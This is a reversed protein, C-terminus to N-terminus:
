IYKNTIAPDFGLMFVEIQPTLGLKNKASSYILDFLFLVDSAKANGTNEIFAAHRESIVADGSRIGKLNLIKDIIYGWSCSTLKLKKMQMATINKFCCGASNYPQIKKNQAWKIATSLAMQKEGKYLNLNIELILSKSEHFLTSDYDFGLDENLLTKENNDKDLIVVSDVYESLFHSGGHINNYIAGGITGPIGAFWQLGTVGNNILVNILKPLYYGSSVKVMVQPKSSEDYDIEDFSYYKDTDIQDLRAEVNLKSTKETAKINHADIELYEVKNIIVVGRIGEDSILVNSGSGLITLPINLEKTLKCLDILIAKTSVEILLDAIGGIKWTTYPALPVHSKFAINDKNLAAILKQLKKDM